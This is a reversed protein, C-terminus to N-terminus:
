LLDIMKKGKEKELKRKKRNEASRKGYIRASFSSMLSIMDDVLEEEYTKNAKRGVCEITVGHSAFYREYVGYNFRTLRDKHEVVVKTIKKEEVLTFLKKLKSRTNSMGSGVDTLVYGVKYGNDACYQTLRVTQRDLDGKEKQDHSSVRSYQAVVEVNSEVNSPELGQLREIDSLRYRRHGGSTRVPKLKGDRDWIRLIKISVGLAEAAEGISILKEM